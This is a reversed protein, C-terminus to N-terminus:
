DHGAQRLAINGLAADSMPHDALRPNAARFRRGIEHLQEADMEAPNQAHVEGYQVVAPSRSRRSKLIAYVQATYQEPTVYFGPGYQQLAM